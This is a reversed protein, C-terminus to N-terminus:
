GEVVVVSVVALGAGLRSEDHAASDEVELGAEDLGAEEPEPLAPDASVEPPM